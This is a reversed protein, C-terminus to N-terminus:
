IAWPIFLVLFEFTKKNKKLKGKYFLMAAKNSHVQIGLAAYDKDLKNSIECIMDKMNGSQEQNKKRNEFSFKNEKFDSM